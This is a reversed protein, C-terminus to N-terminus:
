GIIVLPRGENTIIFDRGHQFILVSGFRLTQRDQFLFFSNIEPECLTFPTLLAKGGDLSSTPSESKRVGTTHGGRGM